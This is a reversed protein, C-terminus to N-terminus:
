LKGSVTTRDGRFPDVAPLEPLTDAARATQLERWLKASAETIRQANEDSRTRFALADEPLEVLDGELCTKVTEWADRMADAFPGPYNKLLFELRPKEELHSKLTARTQLSGTWGGDLIREWDFVR